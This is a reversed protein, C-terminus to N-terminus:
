TNLKKAYEWVECQSDFILITVKSVYCNLAKSFTEFEVFRDCDTYLDCWYYTTGKKVLFRLERDYHCCYIKGAEEKVDEIDIVNSDEKKSFRITKM